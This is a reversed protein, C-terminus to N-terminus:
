SRPVHFRGEDKEYVRGEEYLKRLLYTTRDRPIGLDRFAVELVEDKKAGQGAVDCKRVLDLIKVLEEKMSSTTGTLVLDLDWKGGEGALGRAWHEFIRKAVQVDQVDVRDALRARASSEAFRKLGELHRLSILVRNGEGVSEKRLDVFYDELEQLVERPLELSTRRRRALLVWKRLLESPIPPLIEASVGTVPAAAADDEPVGARHAELVHKALQRDRRGGDPVDVMTFIADFRQLLPLPLEVQDTLRKGKEMRGSKPNAAALVSTRTNLSANISAKAITIRQQEMAEHMSSRDEPGMKDFEDVLAIGDNALVLVGAELTWRRDHEDPVVAATLGAASSGKGAALVPRPHVKQVFSLLQSKGTSPDGLLLVHVDGRVRTGDPLIRRVGGFLQLVLALKETELGYISPAISAALRELVDPRSAEAEIARVDDVTLELERDEQVLDVSLVQLELDLLTNKSRGETRTTARLVGNFVARSGPNVLDALDESLRCTLRQPQAGGKVREPFEQVELTQTDVTESRETLLKFRTSSAARGCGGQAEYCEFPLQLRTDEQPQRIVRLCRECCFSAETIRPRVESARRVLGEVSVLRGLHEGRLNRVEVRVNKSTPLGRLRVHVKLTGAPRRDDRDLVDLLARDAALLTEAAHNLLQEALTSDWRELEFYSLEVGKRSPYEDCLRSIEPGAHAELFAAFRARLSDPTWAEAM